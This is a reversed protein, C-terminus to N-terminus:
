NMEQDSLLSDIHANNNQIDGVTNRCVAVLLLGSLIIMVVAYVMFRPASLM